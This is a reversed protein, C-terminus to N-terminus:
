EVVEITEQNGRSTRSDGVRGYIESAQKEGPQRKGFEERPANAMEEMIACLHDIHKETIEDLTKKLASKEWHEKELKRIETATLNM